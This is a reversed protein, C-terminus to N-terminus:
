DLLKSAIILIPSPEQATEPETSVNIVSVLVVLLATTLAGIHFQYSSNM